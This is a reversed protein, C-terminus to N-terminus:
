CIACFHILKKNEQFFNVRSFTQVDFLLQNRSADGALRFLRDYTTIPQSRLKRVKSFTVLDLLFFGFGEFAKPRQAEAIILLVYKQLGNPFKYWLSEYSTSAYCEFTDMTFSGVYCCLLVSGSCVVIGLLAIYIRMNLTKTVQFQTCLLSSFQDNRSSLSVTGNGDSFEHMGHIPGSDDIHFINTWENHGSM